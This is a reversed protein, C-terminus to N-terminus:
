GRAWIGVEFRKLAARGFEWKLVSLRVAEAVGHIEFGNSATLIPDV